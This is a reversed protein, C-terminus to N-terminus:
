SNWLIKSVSTNIVYEYFYLRFLTLCWKRNSLSGVYNLIGVLGLWNLMERKVLHFFLDKLSELPGWLVRLTLEFFKIKDFSLFKNFIDFTKFVQNFIILIVTLYYTNINLLVSLLLTWIEIYYTVYKSFAVFYSLFLIKAREINLLSPKRKRKIVM